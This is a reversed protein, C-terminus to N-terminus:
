IKVIREINDNDINKVRKITESADEFSMAIVYMAIVYMPYAKAYDTSVLHVTYISPHLKM